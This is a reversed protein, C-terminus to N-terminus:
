QFKSRPHICVQCVYVAKWTLFTVPVKSFIAGAETYQLSTLPPPYCSTTLTISLFFTSFSESNKFLFKEQFFFNCKMQTDIYKLVRLVSGAVEREATLCEVSKLSVTFFIGLLLSVQVSQYIYSAIGAGYSSFQPCKKVNASSCQKRKSKRIEMKRNKNMEMRQKRNQDRSVRTQQGQYRLWIHTSRGASSGATSPSRAVDRGGVFFVRPSNSLRM